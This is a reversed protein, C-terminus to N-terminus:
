TRLNVPITWEATKGRGSRTLGARYLARYLPGSSVGTAEMIDRPSGTFIGNSSNEVMHQLVLAFQDNNSHYTKPM